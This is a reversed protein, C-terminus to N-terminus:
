EITVTQQIGYTKSEPVVLGQYVPPEATFTGTGITAAYYYFPQSSKGTWFKVAQGNVEYPYRLGHEYDIDYANINTLLKLGAPLYDIVTYDRDIALADAAPNILVKIIDNQAFSETVTGEVSYERGISLYSDTAADALNVPSVYEMILGVDGVINAFGIDQLETPNLTTTFTENGMLSIANKKGGITYEFSVPEGSLLPLTKTLYTLQEITNLQFQAWNANAYAFLKEAQPSSIETALIAAQYAYETMDDQIEGLMLRTYLETEEGYTSLLENLISGAYEGAGLNALGRALYLKLEPNLSETALFSTIDTIVPEGINALGFLAYAIESATSNRTNLIGYLYGRAANADFLDPALELAKATFLVEPSAYPLIKIGGEYSQFDSFTLTEPASSEAFYTNLLVQSYHRALKQDLRDGHFWRLGRLLNYYQGREKNTFTLTADQGATDEITLAEDALYHRVTRETLHTSLIDVTKTVTDEYEGSRAHVRVSRTGETFDPLSFEAPMFSTGNIQISDFETEPFSVDYAVQDGAELTRGFARLKITPQDATLYEEALSIDVFFPQTVILSTKEGAASLDKAVAQVTTVWSTINDPLNVQVSASGQENTVTSGFFAVDQFDERGGGKENHVYVGDAIFTHYTETALNYVVAPMHHDEITDIVVERGNEDLLTDGIKATGAPRWERNINVIHEPTVDLFGNITIYHSITHKRVSTVRDDALGHNDAGNLTAIREGAIIDSIQKRSGDAMLIMTEGTFCGGGEAMAELSDKHTSYSLKLSPGIFQYLTDLTSLGDDWQIAALAEDIASVNVEAVVPKGNSDVVTISLTATEGPLYDDKDPVASIDLQRESKDFAIRAAPTLHYSRGDFYIGYLYLNPVYSESFSFSTIPSSSQEVDFIGNHDKFFLLAGNSAPELISDNKNFTATVTEGIRYVGSSDELESKDTTIHYSDYGEMYGYYLSRGNSIYTTATAIRGDTDTVNATVKYQWDEQAEFPLNFIGSEDSAVTTENVIDEHLDYRYTKYTKKNIFDYRTGTEIQEYYKHYITLNVQANPIPDGEYEWLFDSSGANMSDLTIGHVNGSISGSEESTMDIEYHPGFTYINADSYMETIESQTPHASFYSYNPYYGSNTYSTALTVQATGNTDTKIIGTGFTGTYELELEAVPTGDFFATTINFVANEGEFIALRPTTVEIKYPPKTYTQVNIYSTAIKTGDAIVSVTYTGPNLNSYELAGEFTGFESIPVKQSAITEDGYSEVYYNTTELNVTVSAPSSGTRKKAVGWFKVSDTPLYLNRNTYLYSWYENSYNSSFWWSYEYHQAVPILLMQAGSQITFFNTQDPVYDEEANTLIAPTSFTSVGNTDTTASFSQDGSFAITGNAVPISQAVDHAWILSTSGSGEFSAVVNTSQLFAQARLATGGQEYAVDVLYQGVPLSDPFEIYEMYDSTQIEATFSTQLELSDTPYPNNRRAYYAWYPVSNTSSVADTFETFSNFAWVNVELESLGTDYEHMTLVPAEAVPYEYFQNEFQLSGENENEPATEFRFTHQEGLTEDSGNIPLGPKVTVTYITSPQLTDPLFVLTKRYQEFTGTVSPTIEIFQEYNVYSDYSFTIEIGTNLPVRTARDAPITGTIKFIDKTQYAWSYERKKATEDAQTTLEFTYVTNSNLQEQPIISFTNSDSSEVKYSIMPSVALHAMITDADIAEKSKLTFTSDLEVGIADRKEATLSFLDDTTTIIPTASRNTITPTAEETDSFINTYLYLAGTVVAVLLVGLAIYLSTIKKMHVM